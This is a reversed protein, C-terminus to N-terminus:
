GVLIEGKWTYKLFVEIFSYGCSFTLDQFIETEYAGVDFLSLCFLPFLSVISFVDFIFTQFMAKRVFFRRTWVGKQADVGFVAYALKECVAVLFETVPPFWHSM